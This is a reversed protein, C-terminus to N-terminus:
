ARKTTRSTRKKPAEAKKPPKRAPAKASAAPVFARRGLEKVIERISLLEGM